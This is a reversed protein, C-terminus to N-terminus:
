AALHGAVTAALGDLTTSAAATIEEDTLQVSFHEEIFQILGIYDVSDLFGNSLFGDSCLSAASEASVDKIDALYAIIDAAVHKTANNAM